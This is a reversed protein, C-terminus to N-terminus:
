LEDENILTYSFSNGYLGASQKCLSMFHMHDSDFQRVQCGASYAGVKDVERIFSTTHANLGTVDTYTRGSPDHKGDRDNDRWVDFPFGVQVLAEYGKHLGVQWCGRYQGPQLIATGNSNLMRNRLWFLGPSTTGKHLLVVPRGSADRFAIGLLDNFEDKPSFGRRIGFLNLNYAGNHFFRYGLDGFCDRLDNYTVKM